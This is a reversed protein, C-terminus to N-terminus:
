EVLAARLLQHRRRHQELFRVQVPTLNAGPTIETVVVRAAPKPTTALGVTARVKEVFSKAQPFATTLQPFMLLLSVASVAITLLLGVTRLTKM